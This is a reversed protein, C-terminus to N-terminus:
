YRWGAQKSCSEQEDAHTKEWDSVAQQGFTGMATSACDCYAQLTEDSQGADANDEICEAIQADEDANAQAQGAFPAVLLLSSLLICSIKM